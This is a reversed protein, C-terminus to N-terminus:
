PQDEWERNHRDAHVDRKEWAEDEPWVGLPGCRVCTVTRDGTPHGLLRNVHVITRDSPRWNRAPEHPPRTGDMYWGRNWARTRMDAEALLEQERRM